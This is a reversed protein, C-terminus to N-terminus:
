LLCTGRAASTKVGVPVAPTVPVTNCSIGTGDAEQSVPFFLSQLCSQETCHRNLASVLKAQYILVLYKLKIAEVADLVEDIYAAEM